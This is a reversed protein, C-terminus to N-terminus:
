AGQQGLGKLGHWWGVGGTQTSSAPGGQWLKRGLSTLGLAAPSRPYALVVPIQRMVAQSVLPDSPLYGWDAVELGLFRRAVCIVKGAAEMAESRSNAQNVVVGFRTDPHQNRVVKILAYADAIATPEPTTVVLLEGAAAAFSRVGAGIGAGTDILVMDAREELWGLREILQDRQAPHLDALESLGSAGPLLSVGLPGMMVVEELSLRGTLADAVTQRPRLGMMLDANSLGLDADVVLVKVGMSALVVALNVVLNTKGVGGKGSSVAISRCRSVRGGSRAPLRGSGRDPRSGAPPRGEFAKQLAAAQQGIM